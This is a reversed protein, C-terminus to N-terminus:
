STKRHSVFPNNSGWVDNKETDKLPYLVKIGPCVKKLLELCERSRCKISHVSLLTNVIRLCLDVTCHNMYFSAFTFLIRNDFRGNVSCNVIFAKRLVKNGSTLIPAIFQGSM